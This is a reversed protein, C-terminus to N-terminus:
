CNVVYVEVYENVAATNESLGRRRFLGPREIIIGKAKEDLKRTDL